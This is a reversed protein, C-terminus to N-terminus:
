LREMPSSWQKLCCSSVSVRCINRNHSVSQSVTDRSSNFTNIETSPQSKSKMMMMKILLECVSETHQWNIWTWDPCLASLSGPWSSLSKLVSKNQDDTEWKRDTIKWHFSIVSVVTFIVADGYYDPRGAESPSLSGQTHTHTHLYVVVFIVWLSKLFLLSSSLRVSLTSLLIM